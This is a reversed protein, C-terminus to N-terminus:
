ARAHAEALGAVRDAADPRSFTAAARGMARLREPADLLPEIVGALRGADLEGDPIIVAAGIDALRRANGTQHDGPAGPLPVLVSALGAAALEFVTGAGARHVALDAAAYLLDMRDEFAVQQYVLGRGDDQPPAMEPLGYDRHGIVHRIAVRRRAQWQAALAVVATNLRRAGLSGGAVVIVQSDVPLGLARRARAQGGPSRDVAAMEPRVPNGTVIAGPLPTGAFAVAVAVATKAALRNALGPVANQEAVVLPVRWLFAALSCPVSAYGGVSVVVSPRRRGVLLVALVTALLLGSVAGVNALTVRRALGRGPLLTLGFGAGPVLRREMGRRSGVFHLSAPPHGREVLARGIALAPIVHGATGGGAIIAFTGKRGEPAATVQPARSPVM